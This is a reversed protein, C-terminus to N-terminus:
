SLRHINGLQDVTNFFIQRGDPHCDSFNKCAFQRSQLRLMAVVSLTENHTRIFLQTRKDFKFRGNPVVGTVPPQNMGLKLDDGSEYIAAITSVGCCLLNIM